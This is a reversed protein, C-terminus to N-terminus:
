LRQLVDDHTRDPHEKAYPKEAEHVYHGNSSSHKVSTKDLRNRYCDESAHPEPHCHEAAM